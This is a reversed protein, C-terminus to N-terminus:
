AQDGGLNGQHDRMAFVHAAIQEVLTRLRALEEAIGDPAGMVPTVTAESNQVSPVLRLKFAKRKTPAESYSFRLNGLPGANAWFNANGQWDTFSSAPNIAWGGNSRAWTKLALLDPAIVVFECRLGDSERTLTWFSDTATIRLSGVHLASSPLGLAERTRNRGESMRRKPNAVKRNRRFADAGETMWEMIVGEM